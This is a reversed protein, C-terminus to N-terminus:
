QNDSERFTVTVNRRDGCDDVVAGGELYMRVPMNSVGLSAITLLPFKLITLNFQRDYFGRVLNYESETIRTWTHSFQKKMNGNFYVSINSDATEVDTAGEIDTPTLINRELRPLTSTQLDDTLVIETM